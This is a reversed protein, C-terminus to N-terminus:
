LTVFLEWYSKAADDPYILFKKAMKGMARRGIMHQDIETFALGDKQEEKFAEKVEEEVEKNEVDKKFAQGLFAFPSKSEPKM